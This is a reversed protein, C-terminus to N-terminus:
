RLIFYAIIVPTGGPNHRPNLLPSFEAHEIRVKRQPTIPCL